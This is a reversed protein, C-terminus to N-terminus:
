TQTKVQEPTMFATSPFSQTSDRRSSTPFLAQNANELFLSRSSEEKSTSSPSSLLPEVSEDQFGAVLARITDERAKQSVARQAKAWRSFILVLIQTQFSSDWRHLAMLDEDSAGKLTITLETDEEGQGFSIGFLNPSPGGSEELAGVFSFLLM